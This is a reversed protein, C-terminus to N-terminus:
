YVCAWDLMTVVDPSSFSSGSLDSIHVLNDRALMLEWVVACRHLMYYLGVIYLVYITVVECFRRRRHLSSSSFGSGAAQQRQTRRRSATHDTRGVSSSQEAVAWLM